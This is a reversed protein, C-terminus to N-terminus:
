ESGGGVVSGRVAEVECREVEGMVWDVLRDGEQAALIAPGEHGCHSVEMDVYRNLRRRFKARLAKHAKTM